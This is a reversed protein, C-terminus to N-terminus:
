CWSDEVFVITNLYRIYPPRHVEYTHTCKDAKFNDLIPISFKYGSHRDVLTWMRSICLMHHNNIEIKPDMSSCQIFLPTLKLFDMSIDTWSRVPVRLPTVLGLPPKNSQKVRQCTDCSAVFSQLLACLAQSLYRATLYRMTKEVGGNATAVHAADILAEYYNKGAFVFNHLLILEWEVSQWFEDLFDWM